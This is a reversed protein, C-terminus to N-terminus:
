LIRHRTKPYYTLSMPSKSLTKANQAQSITYGAQRAQKEILQDFPKNGSKLLTITTKAPPYHLILRRIIEDCILLPPQSDTLVWSGKPSLHTCAFCTLALFFLPILRTLTKM